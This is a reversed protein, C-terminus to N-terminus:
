TSNGVQSSYGFVTFGDAEDRILVGATFRRLVWVFWLDGVAGGANMVAALSVYFSIGPPVVIMLGMALLSIVVLPALAVIIYEGKRFLAGEATAYLVGSSLKMGYRPKHGTLQIAIGHILEHLPLVLVIALVVGILWPVEFTSAAIQPFWAARLQAAVNGWAFFFVVSLFLPILAILNLRLLLKPDTITLHYIAEYGDPLARIPNPM